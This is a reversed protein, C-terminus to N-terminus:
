SPERVACENKSMTRNVEQSVALSSLQLLLSAGRNSLIRHLELLNNSLARGNKLADISHSM